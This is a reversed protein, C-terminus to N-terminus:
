SFLLLDRRPGYFRGGFVDCDMARLLPVGYHPHSATGLGVLDFHHVVCVDKIKFFKTFAEDVEVLIVIVLLDPPHIHTKDLESRFVSISQVQLIGKVLVEDTNIEKKM